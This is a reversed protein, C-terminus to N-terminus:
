NIKLWVNGNCSYLDISTGSLIGAFAGEQIPVDNTSDHIGLWLAPVYGNVLLESANIKLQGESFDIYSLPSNYIKVKSKNVTTFVGEYEYLYIYDVDIQSLTTSTAYQKQTAAFQIKVNVSSLTSPIHIPLYFDEWNPTVATVVIRHTQKYSGYSFQVTVIPSVGDVGRRLRLRAVLDKGKINNLPTGSITQTAAWPHTPFWYYDGGANYTSTTEPHRLYGSTVSVGSLSWGTSSSFTYSTINSSVDNINSPSLEAGDGIRIIDQLTSAVTSQVAFGKFTESAEVRVDGNYFKYQEITWNSIYNSSGLAFINTNNARGVLGWISASTYNINIFDTTAHKQIKFYPASGGQLIANTTSLTNANITYGAIEGGALAKIVGEIYINGTAYLGYGSLTGFLPHTIGDLSGYQMKLSYNAPNTPNTTWTVVRTYPSGAPDLVTREIWGNGSTGYDLVLAGKYVKLGLVGGDDNCTFTWRQEGDSLDVYSSVTGWVDAVILGGGSRDVVRLRLWDGSQFVQTDPFGPLDEVYLYTTGLVESNPVTMDRSLIAVSKTLFDSGALAQSIDAIFAKVHLEDAYIYRFDAQGSSTIRWGTLQSVYNSTGINYDLTLQSGNWKYGSLTDFRYATNNWYTFAGANPSDERTAVAQLSGTEGVRFTDSTENFLFQYNTLTGREVEIGAVGATVGNGVENRNILLLNDEIEVTEVNAIFQTGLVTLNGQVTLGGGVNVGALTDLSLTGDADKGIGLREFRPTSTTAIDQITNLANDTLKFNTANYLLDIAGDTDQLPYNFTYLGAILDLEGAENVTFKDSYSLGILGTNLDYTLPETVDIGISTRAAVPDLGTPGGDWRYNDVSFVTSGSNAVKAALSATRNEDSIPIHAQAYDYNYGDVTVLKLKVDNGRFLDVSMSEIFYDVGNLEVNDLVEWDLLDDDVSLNLEYAGHRKGYFNFYKEAITYAYGDLCEQPTQIGNSEWDSNYPTGIIVHTWHEITPITDSATHSKICMLPASSITLDFPPIGVNIGKVVDGVNYATGTQYNGRYVTAESDSKRILYGADIIDDKTVILDKELPNRPKINQSKTISATGVVFEDEHNKYWSQVNVTVGDVLKDWFHLKSSGPKITKGVLSRTTGNTGLSEKKQIVLNGDKNIFIYCQMSDALYVLADYPHKEFVQAGMLQSFYDLPLPYTADGTLNVLSIESWAKKVIAEIIKLGDFGVAEYGAGLTITQDGAGENYKLTYSSRYETLLIDAGYFYDGWNKLNSGVASNGQTNPYNNDTTIVDFYVPALDDSEEGSKKAKYKIISYAEDTSFPSRIISGLNPTNLLTTAKNVAEQTLENYNRYRLLFWKHRQSTVDGAYQYYLQNVTVDSNIQYLVDYVERALSADILKLAALKDVIGFSVKRSLDPWELTHFDTVGEFLKVETGTSKIGLIEFLYRKKNTLDVSFKEYAKTTPTYYMSASIKDYKVVGAEGVNKSEVSRNISGLSSVLGRPEWTEWSGSPYDKFKLNFM